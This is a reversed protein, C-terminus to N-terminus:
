EAGFLRRYLERKSEGPLNRFNLLYIEKATSDAARWLEGAFDQDFLAKLEFPPLSALRDFDGGASAHINEMLRQVALGVPDLPRNKSPSYAYLLWAVFGKSLGEINIGSAKQLGLLQRKRYIPNNRSLTDFDWSALDGVGRGPFLNIPRHPTLNISSILPPPSISNLSPNLLNLSKFVRCTAYLDQAFRTFVLSCSAYLDDALRTFGVSCNAYLDNDISGGSLADIFAQGEKEKLSAEIIEAPIEELLVNFTRPSTAFNPVKGNGTERLYVRTVPHKFKGPEKSKKGQKGYLWEYVTMSRSLGMWGGIEAYGGQVVVQTRVEGTERNVYCRDRLLTLMWGPGAGLHLLIHQLFFHSVFLLDKDPMIHKHLRTALAALREAPLMDAFLSRLISSVTEPVTGEQVQDDQPLLEDLPSDAAAEVAQELGGLRELNATLWTRLSCADAGTLPLTMSVVYKRPLQRPTPSSIDWEPGSTSTSVLGKLREWNEPKGIRNWFTREAIGCWAAITQGSIRDRKTGSRGGASYAAQRFALYMWGLDPGILRLYKRFYGPLVVVRDPTVIEDYALEYQGEVLLEDPHADLATDQTEKTETQEVAQGDDEEPELDDNEISEIEKAVTFRVEVARNMIGMLLRTATSSLRSELWDRAYANRVAITFLGDEYSVMRSDRVWTDFSAKPMEMQLQGLASQWAQEADMNM